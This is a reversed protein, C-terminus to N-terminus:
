VSKCKDIENTMNEITHYAIILVLLAIGEFDKHSFPSGVLKSSKSSYHHLRGRIKVILRTLGRVDFIENEESCLKKVNDLYKKEGINKVIMRSLIERFESSNDLLKVAEVFRSKGKCYIDELIFYTSYFANIYRASYFENLGERFFAKLVVLSRYKEKSSILEVFRRATLNKELDEPKRTKLGIVSINEQEENTEPIWVENRSDWAISKLSGHTEYSLVSELEQFDEKLEDFEEIDRRIRTIKKNSNLDLEIKRVYKEPRNVPKTIVITKLWGTKDPKLIYTKNGVVTRINERISIRGEVDCEVSIIMTTKEKVAWGKKGIIYWLWVTIDSLMRHPIM